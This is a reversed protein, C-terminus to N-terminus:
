HKDEQTTLGVGVAPAKPLIGNEKLRDSLETIQKEIARLRLWLALANVLVGICLGAVLLQEFNM